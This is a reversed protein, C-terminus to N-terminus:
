WAYFNWQDENEAEVDMKNRVDWQHYILPDLKAGRRSYREGNAGASWKASYWEGIYSNNNSECRYYAPALGLGTAWAANVNLNNNWYIIRQSGDGVWESHYDGYLVNYGEQHAQLGFGPTQLVYTSKHFMDSALVRGGLKRETPVPPM